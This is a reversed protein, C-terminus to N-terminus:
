WLISINYDEAAYTYTNGGAVVSYIGSAFSISSVNTLQTINFSTKSIIIVRM